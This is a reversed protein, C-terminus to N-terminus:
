RLVKPERPDGPKVPAVSDEIEVLKAFEPWAEITARVACRNAWSMLEGDKRKTLIDRHAPRELPHEMLFVACYALPRKWLVRNARCSKHNPLYCHAALSSGWADHCFVGIRTRYYVYGGGMHPLAKPVLHGGVDEVEVAVNKGGGKGRGTGRGRLTPAIAPRLPPAADPPPLPPPDEAPADEPPPLPPLESEIAAAMDLVEGIIPLVEDIVVAGYLELDLGDGPIDDGGDVAGDDIALAPADDDGGPGPAGDPAAPPPAPASPGAGGGPAAGRGRGVGRGRRLTRGKPRGAADRKKRFGGPDWFLVRQKYPRIQQESPKFTSRSEDDEHLLWAEYYWKQSLDHHQFSKWLNIWRTAEAIVWIRKHAAALLDERDLRSCQLLQFRWPNLHAYSVHHIRTNDDIDDLNSMLLMFVYSDQLLTRAASKAPFCQRVTVLFAEVYAALMKGQDTCLHVGAVRCLKQKSPKLQLVPCEAHRIFSSKKSWDDLLKSRHPADLNPLVKNSVDIGSHKWEFHGARRFLANTSRAVLGQEACKIGQASWKVMADQQAQTKSLALKSIRRLRSRVLRVREQVSANPDTCSPPALSIRRRKAGFIDTHNRNRGQVTGVHGERKWREKSAPSANRRMGHLRCMWDSQTEAAGKPYLKSLESTAKRQAGGRRPVDANLAVGGKRVRRRRRKLASKSGGDKRMNRPLVAKRAKPGRKRVPRSGVKKDWGKSTTACGAEGFETRCAARTAAVTFAASFNEFSKVWTNESLLRLRRALAHKAEIHGIGTMALIALIQLGKQLDTNARFEEFTTIGELVEYLFDCFFHSADEDWFRRAKEIDTLFTFFGFTSNSWVEFMLLEACGAGRAILRFAFGVRRNTWQNRSVANRRSM